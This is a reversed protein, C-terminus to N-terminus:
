GSSIRAMENKINMNLQEQNQLESEYQLKLQTRTQISTDHMQQLKESAFYGRFVVKTIEFGIQLARETLKSFNSLDNLTHCTEIFNLYTKKSSFSIVDSRSSNLFDGIPDKTEQVMKHIDKLEYFIMLKIKILADDSTRVEDVNYYIQSPACNLVEFQNTDAIFRTKHVENVGHWSFKHVWQDPELM